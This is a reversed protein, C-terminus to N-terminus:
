AVKGNDNCAPLHARCDHARDIRQWTRLVQMYVYALREPRSM